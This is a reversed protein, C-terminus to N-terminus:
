NRFYDHCKPQLLICVDSIEIGNKM